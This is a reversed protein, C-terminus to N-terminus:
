CKTCKLTSGCKHCNISFSNIKELLELAEFECEGTRLLHSVTKKKILNLFHTRTRIVQDNLKEMQEQYDNIIEKKAKEIDSANFAVLAKDKKKEVWSHYEGLEALAESFIRGMCVTANTATLGGKLVDDIWIDAGVYHIFAVISADIVISKNHLTLAHEEKDKSLELYSKLDISSYM